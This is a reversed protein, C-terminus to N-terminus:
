EFRRVIGMLLFYGSPQFHAETLLPRYLQSPFDYTAAPPSGKPRLINDERRM